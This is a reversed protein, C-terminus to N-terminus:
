WAGITEWGFRYGLRRPIRLSPINTAFAGYVAAAGRALVERTAAGVAALAYRQGRYAEETGVGFGCVEASKWILIAISACRPGFPALETSAAEADDHYCAFAWVFDEQEAEAPPQRECM